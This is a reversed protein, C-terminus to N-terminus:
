YLALGVSGQVDYIDSPLSCLTRAAATVQSVCSDEVVARSSQGVVVIPECWSRCFGHILCKLELRFIVRRVCYVTHNSEVTQPDSPRMSLSKSALYGSDCLQCPFPRQDRHADEPAAAHQREDLLEQSVDRM